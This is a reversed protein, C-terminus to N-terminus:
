DVEIKIISYVEKTLCVVLVLTKSSLIKNHPLLCAVLNLSHRIIQNIQHKFYGVVAKIISLNDQVQFWGEQLNLSHCHRNNLFKIEVLDLKDQLLQHLPHKQLFDRVVELVLRHHDVWYAEEQHKHEQQILLELYVVAAVLMILQPLSVQNKNFYDVQKFVQHQLQHQQIELFDAVVQQHLVEVQVVLYDVM